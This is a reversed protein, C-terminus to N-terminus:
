PANWAPKFVSQAFAEISTPTTSRPSRPQTPKVKGENFGRQMEVYLAALDDTLGAQVLAKKTEDYPFPVYKLDPKGIAAGLARTVENMTLDRQGHLEQVERGQFDLALLRAAAAEGIDRTAIHPMPQDAALASGNLNMGKMLGLANLQNEMFFGPRLHLVSAGPLRDLRQELDHLGAIPGNDRDLQAGVSSLSVVRPVRAAELAAGLAAVISRQYARFDPVGFAPPVLVFAAAAGEFARRLFAEDDLSGAAVEAGRSTLQSLKGAGRAVLRVRKGKEVLREAIVRGVHGTAGCVVHLNEAM